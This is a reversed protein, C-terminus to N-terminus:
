RLPPVGMYTVHVHRLAGSHDNAVWKSSGGWRTWLTHRYIYHRIQPGWALDFLFDLSDKGLQPDIADGRGDAGWVDVSRSSWGCFPHCVYTNATVRPFTSLLSQVVAHVDRDWRYRTAGSGWPHRPDETM